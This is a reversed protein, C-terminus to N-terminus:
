KIEKEILVLNDRHIVEASAEYGLVESIKESRQGAIKKIDDSSFATLGRAIELGAENEISVSDGVSFNGIADKIGVALLSKSSKILATEAGGDIIIKGKIPLGHALWRKRPELKSIKAKFTTGVKKGDLIDAIVNSKQGSGIAMTIGSSSCIKAARIKTIMGGTGSQTSPHGAELEVEKTIDSIEHQLISEGDADKMMFGDVDTLIVLIDAGILSAVLAALNDNDGIKIEEISVTDNENVIPIVDMKLLESFTNRSNIYRERDAIADRTLLVQAVTTEHENFAKIYEKMLLSQGVAAAAQKAPITKPKGKINLRESGCVIAGSTVLVVNKGDKNLQSLEKAMRKLNSVDLKGNKDTLSSSGIKVVITKFKQKM